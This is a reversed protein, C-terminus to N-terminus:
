FSVKAPYIHRREATGHEATSVQVVRVTLMSSGVPVLVSRAAHDYNWLRRLWSWHAYRVLVQSRNDHHHGPASQGAPCFEGGYMGHCRANESLASQLEQVPLLANQLAQPAQQLRSSNQKLEIDDQRHKQTIIHGSFWQYYILPM